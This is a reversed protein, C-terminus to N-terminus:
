DECFCVNTKLKNAQDKAMTSHILTLAKEKKVKVRRRQLYTCMFVLTLVSEQTIAKTGVIEVSSLEEKEQSEIRRQQPNMRVRKRKPIPKRGQRVPYPPLELENEGSREWFNIGNAPKIHFSYQQLWKSTLFHHSIYDEQNLQKDSIIKLVHRCPLGSM